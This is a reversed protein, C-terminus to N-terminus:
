SAVATGNVPAAMTHTEGGLHVVHPRPVKVAAQRHWQDRLGSVSQLQDDTAVRQDVIVCLVIVVSQVM